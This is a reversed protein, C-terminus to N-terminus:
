KRDMVDLRGKYLFRKIKRTSTKVFEDREIGIRTARQYPALKEMCRRVESELLTKFTEVIETKADETLTELIIAERFQISEKKAHEVLAEYDPSIVAGVDEGVFGKTRYGMVISEAIFPSKNIENEVVEPYVNKGGRTVIVDKARGTIFIYGDEDIKGLDGTYLWGDRLVLETQEPNRYYGQMVIDGKVILEGIGDPGPNAIKTEVGPLAPGISGIKIRGPPNASVVPSTETLGYGEIFEVGLKVFGEIVEPDMPAAGSVILRINGGLKKLLARGIIKRGGYKFIFSKIKSSEVQRMVTRYIKSFLLPVGVFITPKCEM